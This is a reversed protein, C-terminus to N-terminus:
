PKCLDSTRRDKENENENQRDEFARRHKQRSPKVCTVRREIKRGKEKETKCKLQGISRQYKKKRCKFTRRKEKLKYSRFLPSKRKNTLEFM